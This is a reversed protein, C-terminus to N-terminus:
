QQNKLSFAHELHFHMLRYSCGGTIRIDYDLPSLSKTSNRSKSQQQELVQCYVYGGFVKLFFSVAFSQSLFHFTFCRSYMYGLIILPQILSLLVGPYNCIQMLSSCRLVLELMLSSLQINISVLHEGAYSDFGSVFDGSGFLYLGVVETVVM